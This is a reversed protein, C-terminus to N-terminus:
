LPRLQPLASRHGILDRLIVPSLCLRLHESGVPSPAPAPLHLVRQPSAGPSVRQVEPSALRLGGAEVEM